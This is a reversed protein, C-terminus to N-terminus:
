EGKVFLMVAVEFSAELQDTKGAANQELYHALADQFSGGPGNTASSGEAASDTAEATPSSSDATPAPAAAAPADSVTSSGVAVHSNAKKQQQTAKCSAKHDPWAKRQCAQSCYYVLKCGSCRLPLGTTPKACAACVKRNGGAAAAVTKAGSSGSGSGSPKSSPPSRVPLSPGARSKNGPPPPARSLPAALTQMQISRAIRLRAARAADQMDSSSAAAAGGDGQMCM